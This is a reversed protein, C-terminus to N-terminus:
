PQPEPEEFIFGKVAAVVNLANDTPNRVDVRVVLGPLLVMTELQKNIIDLKNAPTPDIVSFFWEFPVLPGTLVKSLDDPRRQELLALLKAEWGGLAEIKEGGYKAFWGRRRAEESAEPKAESLFLCERGVYVGSVLLGEGAVLELMPRGLARQPINTLTANAGPIISTPAGLGLM